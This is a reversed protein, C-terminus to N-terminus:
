AAQLLAEDNAAAVADPRLTAALTTAAFPGRAPFSAARLSAVQGAVLLAVPAFLSFSILLNVTEM